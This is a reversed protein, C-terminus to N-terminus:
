FKQSTVCRTVNVLVWALVKVVMTLVHVVLNLGWFLARLVGRTASPLKQGERSSSHGYRGYRELDFEEVVVKQNKSKKPKTKSKTKPKTDSEGTETETAPRNRWRLWTRPDRKTRASSASRIRAMLQNSQETDDREALTAVLKGTFRADHFFSSHQSETHSSHPDYLPMDALIPNTSQDSVAVALMASILSDIAYLSPIITVIAAASISLTMTGLDLSALPDDSDTLPLTSTRPTAAVNASEVANAPLPTTVLITPPQQNHRHKSDRSPTSISIHLTGSYKSPAPSLPIGVAGVLAPPQPKALSPHHLEYLQQTHNWTLRCSEQAAARKLADGEVEAAEVPGLRHQRTLEQAQEIALMAALRSFLRSVLGDNPPQRRGRDELKLMMIPVSSSANSPNIRTIFLEDTSYTQMTYFPSQPEGFTFTAPDTRAMRLNFTGSLEQPRQGNAAEWLGQLEAASSYHVEDAPDLAGLPFNMVSAPVTKPGLARDIEPQPSLTLDKPKHSRSSQSSAGPYYQQEILPVNPNYRPFMSKMPIGPSESRQPPKQVSRSSSGAPSDLEIEKSPMDWEPTKQSSAKSPSRTSWKEPVKESASIANSKAIRAKPPPKIDNTDEIIQLLVAETNPKKNNLDELPIPSAPKITETQRRLERRFPNKSVKTPSPPPFLQFQSM